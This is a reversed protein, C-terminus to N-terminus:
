FNTTSSNSSPTGGRQTGHSLLTPNVCWGLALAAIEPCHFYTSGEGCHHSPSHHKNFYDLLNTHGPRRYVHFEKQHVRDQVWYFCMGMSESKQQRLQKNAFSNITSNNVQVPTPSQPHGKQELTIQLTVRDKTNNFLAGCEAEAAFSMVDRMTTSTTLM